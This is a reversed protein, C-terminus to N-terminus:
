IVHNVLGSDLDYDFVLARPHPHYKEDCISANAYWIGSLSEYIGYASHIHGCVHLKIDPLQMIRNYLDVCGVQEGRPTKDLKGYTPGHTILVNTNNPIEDWKQKIAQGRDLNYAWNFFTPQYASFFFKIGAIDVADHILLNYNTAISKHLSENAEVGLEHNGPCAHIGYSYKHKVKGCYENFATMEPITGKFSMDGAHLLVDGDPLNLHELFAGHTDSICVIRLKNNM